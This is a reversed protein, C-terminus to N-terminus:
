AGACRSRAARGPCTPRAALSFRCWAGARGGRVPALWVHVGIVLGADKGVRRAGLLLRARGGVDARDHHDTGPRDAQRRGDIQRLLAHRDDEDIVVARQGGARARDAEGLARELDEVAEAAAVAHDALADAPVDALDEQLVRQQVAEVQQGFGAMPARGEDVQLLIVHFPEQDLARLRQGVEFQAPLVLHGSERLIGIAHREGDVRGVAGIGQAGAVHDRGVTRAARHAPHHAQFGVALGELVAEQDGIHAHLRVEGVLPPEPEVRREMGVLRHQQVM